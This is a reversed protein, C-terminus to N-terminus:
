CESGGETNYGISYIKMSGTGYIKFRFHDCRKVVIPVTYSTLLSTSKTYVNTFTGNDYAVDINLTGTFELRLQFKSIYKKYPSDLGLNGTELLWDFNAEYSGVAKTIVNYTVPEEEVVTSIQQISYLENNLTATFLFASSDEKVWTKNITDFVFLHSNNSADLMSIYYKDFQQGAVAGHYKVGGFNTSIPEPLSGDYAMVDNVGKFFLTGNVVCLSKASGEQVGNVTTETISFNSPYDGYVKHMRDKKFFLVSNNFSVAGTFNGDSGITATYSDSSLGAFNYWQTPDGLKCAYVERNSSSCGWIRNNMACIYDMQPVRNKCKFETTFQSPQIGAIVVFGNGRKMIVTDGGLEGYAHNYTTFEFNLTDYDNLANIKAKFATLWATADSGAGAEGYTLIPEVKLYCNDLQKWSSTSANYIYVKKDNTNLWYVSTDAPATSQSVYTIATGDLLCPTVQLWSKDTYEVMEVIRTWTETKYEYEIDILTNNTTNFLKKDPLILVYSGISAFQKDSNQVTGILTQNYYLNTGSVYLLHEKPFIGHPTGTLVLMLTRFDRTTIVPSEDLNINKMDYFQSNECRLNHNYGTFSQVYEVEQDIQEVYPLLM